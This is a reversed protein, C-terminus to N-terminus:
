INRMAKLIAGNRKTKDKSKEEKVRRLRAEALAVDKEEQTLGELGLSQADGTGQMNFNAPQNMNWAHQNGDYRYNYLNEYTGLTRNQLQNQLYKDSISSLAERAVDKTNSLAKAQRTYQQDLIGLNKLQADNLIDINKTYIQDKFAQNQRFQEGLVKSNANYQQAMLDSQAAPNYGMMRQAGRTAATNENLIDQLSLEYPTRLDPHYQQAPVPELQNTALAYYEGTLQRPDLDEKNSPLYSGLPNWFQPQTTQETTTTPIEEFQAIPKPPTWTPNPPLFEGQSKKRLADMYQITREGFLEDENSPLEKGIKKSKGYSTEPYAGIIRKAYEPAIEHYKKQFAKVDAGKRQTKAKEYLSLLENYQEETVDPFDSFDLPKDLPPYSTPRQRNMATAIIQERTPSTTQKEQWREKATNRDPELGNIGVQAKPVNAGKMAKIRGKALHEADIGREEATDNIAQQLMSAKNKKNAIDKLKQDAGKLTISLSDFKIKEYPTKPELQELEGTAKEIIKNQKNEDKSLIAVYNKFKKGKANKDGLMDVFQNPIPLNGFVVLNKEGQEDQMQVAPEGREVEVNAEDYPQLEGGEGYRVGIGTRGRGDAEEHSRGRFMVTEGGDPLYPNYSMSEAEGGWLTRLEGNNEMDSNQRINGGTKAFGSMGSQMINSAQSIAMQNNNREVRAMAKDGGKKRLIAGLGTGVINGVASGIPGFVSGVTGGIDGGAQSEKNDLGPIAALGSKTAQAAQSINNAATPNTQVSKVNTKFTNDGLISNGIQNLNNGVSSKGQPREPIGYEQAQTMLQSNDQLKKTWDMGNNIANIGVQAKPVISGDKSRIYSPAFASMSVYKSPDLTTTPTTTAQGGGLLGGISSLIGGSSGGSGSNSSLLSSVISGFSAQPIDGGNYYAKLRDSESLPEYGGNSYIDNPAFTNAIEGGGRYIRLGDRGLLNTGTGEAPMLSNIDEVNRDMDPRNYKRNEQRPASQSSKLQLDSLAGAREKRANDGSWLSAISGVLSGLIPIDKVVGAISEGTTQKKVGPAINSIAQQQLDAQSSMGSAMTNYEKATGQQAQKIREGRMAKKFESGHVALFSEEDPFVRYFDALSKHGSIKLFTKKDM